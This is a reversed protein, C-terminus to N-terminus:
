KKETETKPPAVPAPPATKPPAPKTVGTTPPPTVPKAPEEPNCGSILAACLGMSAVLALSQFRLTKTM